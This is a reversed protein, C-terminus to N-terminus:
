CLFKILKQNLEHNDFKRLPSSCSGLPKTILNQIKLSNLGVRRGFFLCPICFAGGVIKSYALWSHSQLWSLNFKRRKDYCKTFHFSLIIILNEFLIQFKLLRLSQLIVLVNLLFVMTMNCEFLHGIDSPIASSHNAACSANSSSNTKQAATTSPVSISNESCFDSNSRKAPIYSDKAVVPFAIKCQTGYQPSSLYCRKRAVAKKQMSSSSQIKLKSSLPLIHDPADFKTGNM